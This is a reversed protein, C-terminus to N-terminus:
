WHLSVGYGLAAFCVLYKGPHCCLFSTRAPPMVQRVARGDRTAMKDCDRDRWFHGSRVSGYGKGHAVGNRPSHGSIDPSQLVEHRGNNGQM